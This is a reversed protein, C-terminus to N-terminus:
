SCLEFNSMHFLCRTKGERSFVLSQLMTSVWRHVKKGPVAITLLLISGCECRKIIGAGPIAACGFEFHPEGMGTQAMSRSVATTTEAFMKGVSWYSVWLRRSGM